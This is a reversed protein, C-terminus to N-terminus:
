VRPNFSSANKLKELLEKEEDSFTKPMVVNLEVLLDGSDGTKKPLGKGKLRLRSGTQSGQPIKLKAKSDLLEVEVTDGLIAEWPSVELQRVIDYEDLKFKGYPMVKVKLLIDPDSQTKGSLRIVTGDKTGAPIKVQLSKSKQILGGRQPDFEQLTMNIQKTAGKYADMLSISIESEATQKRPPSRHSSRGGQAASFIDEMSGFSAGAHGSGAAQGFIASFFDSFGGMSEGNANGFNFDEFGPPPRFDQGAKWNEGLANYKKRKEPDELVENAENILKFKEEAGKDKNIDPHYTRALKRYAKRIEDQTAERKVGLVEYYDQYKM